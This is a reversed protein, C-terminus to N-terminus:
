CLDLPSFREVPIREPPDGAAVIRGEARPNNHLVGLIPAGGGGHHARYRRLFRPDATIARWHKSVSAARLLSSPQPPLRLLIERLVDDPQFATSSLSSKRSPM